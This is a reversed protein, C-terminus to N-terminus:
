KIVLRARQYYVKVQTLGNTGGNVRRRLADINDADALANLSNRKWFWGAVETAWCPEQLKEPHKMIDVEVDRDFASYNTRGTLQMLGRGRYRYGDGSSESGNGMRNAYVRNAIKEAKRAYAAVNGKNFYKPFTKLLAEASYNLNEVTHQLEGSEHAVQALFHCMRLPTNISYRQMTKNLVPLYEDAVKKAGPMILLLQEKTIEM